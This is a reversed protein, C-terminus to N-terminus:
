RRYVLKDVLLFRLTFVAVLSLATAPLASLGFTSVLVMTLPIRAILDANGLLAFGTLRAGRPREARHRRHLLTDVLAFNWLLGAQNAIIEAPVYHMGATETLLWLVALNPLFGSAGILAFALLRLRADDGARLQGLHRVFRLGERLTSKSEGAHREGFDFPVESVARPRCRVALELLIKYGLPRLGTSRAGRQSGRPGGSAARGVAERRIAFFGSMPDSVGRLARPFLAKAATTSARSVAQRYRGALGRRSGGAAYRSAVVLEAGTRVGTAVLEPVLEPPHQLDADMVVIWPATTRAIGEVVAGGLGGDPRARHHVSVPFPCRRAAEAIVEPTRDTSDDVFLVDYPIGEPVATTIRTLLAEINDAENFTPIVLSVAPATPAQPTPIHAHPPPVPM